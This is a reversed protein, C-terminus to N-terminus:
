RSPLTETNENQKARDEVKGGRPRKHAGGNAGDDAGRLGRDRGSTFYHPAIATDAFREPELLRPVIEDWSPPQTENAEFTDALAASIASVIEGADGPTYGFRHPREGVAFHPCVAPIRVYSFQTLKLSSEALYQAMPADRYPAIGFDAHAVYPLTQGFPMEPYVHVNAGGRYGVGCGIVHFSVDPFAPGAVDFFSPDFLMSGVCVAHRGPSYPNPGIGDFDPRHIGQPVVFTRPSAFAFQPAMGRALLCFRDVHDASAILRRLLLGHAGITDLADAGRYIISARPNQRKIRPILLVGLGSEVLVIDAGRFLRDIEPNPWAAYVDHLPVMAADFLASGTKFPHFPTWWLYCHIGNHTEFRNVRGQLFARPDHKMLSLASFRVSLFTTHFGSRQFADAVAQISGRRAMRYDHVASIIVIRPAGRGSSKM